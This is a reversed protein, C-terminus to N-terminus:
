YYNVHCIYRFIYIYIYISVSEVYTVSMSINQKLIKSSIDVKPSSSEVASQRWSDKWVSPTQWRAENDRLGKVQSSIFPWLHPGQSCLRVCSWWLMEGDSHSFIYGFFWFVPTPLRYRILTFRCFLQLIFNQSRSLIGWVEWFVRCHWLSVHKQLPPLEKQGAKHASCKCPEIFFVALPEHGRYIIWM